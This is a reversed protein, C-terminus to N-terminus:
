FLHPVHKNVCPVHGFQLQRKLKQRENHKGVDGEREGERKRYEERVTTTATIARIASTTTAVTTTTTTTPPRLDHKLAGYQLM